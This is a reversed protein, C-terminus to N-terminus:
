GGKRVIFKWVIPEGTAPKSIDQLIKYRVDDVEIFDKLDPTVGDVPAATIMLESGTTFDDRRYKFPVGSSVADLTHEVESYAGPADGAGTGSTRKVFKIVAPNKFESLIEAAVPRLDDYISM